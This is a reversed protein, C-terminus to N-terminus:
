SGSSFTKSVSALPPKATSLAQPLLEEFASKGQRVGQQKHVKTETEKPITKMMEISNSSKALDKEQATM